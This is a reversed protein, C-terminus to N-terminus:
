LEADAGGWGRPSTGVLLALQATSMRAGVFADPSVASCPISRLWGCVLSINTTDLPSFIYSGASKEGYQETFYHTQPIM